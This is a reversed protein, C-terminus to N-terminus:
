HVGTSHYGCWGVSPSYGSIPYGHISRLPEAPPRGPGTASGIVRRHRTLRRTPIPKIHTSRPQYRNM